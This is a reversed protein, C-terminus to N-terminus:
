RRSAEWEIIYFYFGGGIPEVAHELGCEDFAYMISSTIHQVLVVGRDITVSKWCGHRGKMFFWISGRGNELHIALLVM